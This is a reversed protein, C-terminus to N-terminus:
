KNQGKYIYFGAIVNRWAPSNIKEICVGTKERIHIFRGNGIYVGVHNIVPAAAAFRIAVISPVPYPPSVKEWTETKLAERHMMCSVNEVDDYDATYEPLNIGYRKYIEIVLGYCDFGNLDRGRNKFPIGILDTYIM